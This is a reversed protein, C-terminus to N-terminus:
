NRLHGCWLWSRRRSQRVARCRPWTLEAFTRAKSASWFRQILLSRSFRLTCGSLLRHHIQQFISLRQGTCLLLLEFAERRGKDETQGSINTGGGEKSTQRWTTAVGWM